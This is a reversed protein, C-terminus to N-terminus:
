KDNTAGQQDPNDALKCSFENIFTVCNQVPMHSCYRDHTRSIEHIEPKYASPALKKMYTTKGSTKLHETTFKHTAQYPQYIVLRM